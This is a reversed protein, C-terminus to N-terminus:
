ISLRTCRTGQPSSLAAASFRKTGRAVLGGGDLQTGVQQSLGAPLKCGPAKGAPKAREPHWCPFTNRVGQAGGADGGLDGGPLLGLEIGHRGGKGKKERRCKPALLRSSQECSGMEM